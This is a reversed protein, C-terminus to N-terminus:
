TQAVINGKGSMSPPYLEQYKLWFFDPICSPSGTTTQFKSIRGGELEAPISPVHPSYSGPQAPLHTLVNPYCPLSFFKSFRLVPPSAGM